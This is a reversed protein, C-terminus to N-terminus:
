QLLKQIEQLIKKEQEDLICKDRVCSHFENQDQLIPPVNGALTGDLIIDRFKGDKCKVKWVDEQEFHVFRHRCVYCGGCRSCIFILEGLKGALRCNHKSM